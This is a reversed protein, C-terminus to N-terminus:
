CNPGYQDVYAEMEDVTANFNGNMSAYLFIREVEEQKAVERLDDFVEDLSDECASSQDSQDCAPYCTPGIECPVDAWGAVIQYYFYDPDRRPPDPILLFAGVRNAIQGDDIGLPPYFDNFKFVQDDSYRIVFPAPCWSNVVCGVIEDPGPIPDPNGGPEGNTPVCEQPGAQSPPIGPYVTAILLGLVLTWNLKVKTM